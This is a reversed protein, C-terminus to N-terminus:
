RGGGDLGGSKALLMMARFETTLMQSLREESFCCMGTACLAGVGFTYIWVAEFLARVEARGLGYSGCLADICREATTGLGGFVDDFSVADRNEQMFLLQYLKPEQAGFRVMQMGVRKFPPTDPLDQHAYSEFRAMAAARVAAQLEDMGRFVTFIPRPSCGLAQGLERATLGEPGKQAVIDLAAAVIEDRTFKPKPPM